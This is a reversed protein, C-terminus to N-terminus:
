LENLNQLESYANNNGKEYLIWNVEEKIKKKWKKVTM